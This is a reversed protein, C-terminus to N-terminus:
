CSDSDDRALRRLQETCENIMRVAAETTDAPIHDIADRMQWLAEGLNTRDEGFVEMHLDRLLLFKERQRHREERVYRLIERGKETTRCMKKSRPGTEVVIILGEEELHTLIPYLTGKSPVWAGNTKEEIEKLLDYGSKEEGRLAHLIYLALFGREKGHPSTFSLLGKM